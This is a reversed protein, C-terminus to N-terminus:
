IFAYEKNWLNYDNLIGVVGYSEIPGFVELITNLPINDEPRLDLSNLRKERYESYIPISPKKYLNSKNYPQNDRWYTYNAEWGIKACYAADNRNINPIGETIIYSFVNYLQIILSDTTYSGLELPKYKVNHNSSYNDFVLKAWQFLSKDLVLLDYPINNCATYRKSM